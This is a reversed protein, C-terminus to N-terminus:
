GFNDEVLTFYPAYGDIIPPKGESNISIELNINNGSIPKNGVALESINGTLKGIEIPDPKGDLYCRAQAGALNGGFFKWGIYDKKKDTGNYDKGFKVSLPITADDDLNGTDDKFLKGTDDLFYNKRVGSVNSGINQLMPRTHNERTWNNSDFDYCVRRVVGDVTGLCLKYVNKLKSATAGSINSATLDNFYRKDVAKSIFEHQGTADNYANVRGDIDLWIVWDGINRITKHSACGIDEYRTIMRARDWRHTSTETYMFLRDNSKAWGIISNDSSLSSPIKLYDAKDATPYDTNWLYCLEGKRGTLYIEDNDAVTYLLHITHTGSGSSTLDFATGATANEATTALKITTGSVNIVYYVTDDTLPAPVTNTSTIAVPTGTTFNATSSLTIVDTSTNVDGTGFTLAGSRAPLTLTDEGKDVSSITVNSYRATGAVHDYIDIAMGAKLYRVSDVSMVNDPGATQNGRTFTIASLAASSKYARDAHITGDLEVNMIYLSGGFEAIFRGKPAGILNRTISATLDNKVNVIDMRNGSDDVGAIYLEDISGYIQTETSPEIDNPLTLNSWTSGSLSKVNTKTDGSDNIAAIIKEGTSFKATHLGLGNKGAELTDAYQVYGNRRAISGITYDLRGNIIDEVENPARLFGNTGDQVGGSHDFRRDYQTKM